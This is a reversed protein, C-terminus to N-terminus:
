EPVGLYQETSELLENIKSRITESANRIAKIDSKHHWKKLEYLAYCISQIKGIGDKPIQVLNIISQIEHVDIRDIFLNLLESEPGMRMFFEFAIQNGNNNNNTIKKEVDDIYNQCNALINTTLTLERLLRNILEINKESRKQENTRERYEKFLYAIYTPIIASTVTSFIEKYEVPFKVVYVLLWVIAAVIAVVVLFSRVLRDSFFSKVRNIKSNIIM